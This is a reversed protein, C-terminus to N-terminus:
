GEIYKIQQTALLAVKQSPDFEQLQSRKFNVFGGKAQGFKPGQVFSAIDGKMSSGPQILKLKNNLNPNIQAPQTVGQALTSNTDAHTPTSIIATSVLLTLALGFNSNIRM